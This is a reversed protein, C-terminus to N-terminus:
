RWLLSFISEEDGRANLCAQVLKVLGVCNHKRRREQCKFLGVRAEFSRWLLSFISEEDGTANLCTQVLKLDGGGHNFHSQGVKWGSLCVQM